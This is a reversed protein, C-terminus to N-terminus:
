RNKLMREAMQVAQYANVIRGSVCLESLSVKETKSGPKLVKFDIKTGSNMIIQKIQAASFKPYYARLLAAVGATSPAAM